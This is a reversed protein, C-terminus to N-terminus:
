LVLYEFMSFIKDDIIVRLNFLSVISNFKTNFKTNELMLLWVSEFFCKYLPSSDSSKLILYASFVCLTIHSYNSLYQIHHQMQIWSTFLPHQGRAQWWFVWIGDQTEHHTHHPKPMQTHVTWALPKLQLKGRFSMWFWRSGREAPVAPSREWERKRDKCGGVGAGLERVKRWNPQRDTQRM